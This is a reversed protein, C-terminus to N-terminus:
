ECWRCIKQSIERKGLIFSIHIHLAVSAAAFVFATLGFIRTWLLFRLTSEPMSTNAKYGIILEGIVEILNAIAMCASLRVSLRNKIEPHLIVSITILVAVASLCLVSLDFRHVIATIPHEKLYVVRYVMGNKLVGTQHQLMEALRPLEYM